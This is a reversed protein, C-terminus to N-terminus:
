PQGAKGQIQRAYYRHITQAMEVQKRNKFVRLSFAVRNVSGPWWWAKSRRRPEQLHFIVTFDSNRKLLSMSKAEAFRFPQKNATHSLGSANLTLAGTRYNWNHLVIAGCFLSLVGTGAWAPWPMGVTVFFVIWGACFLFLFSFISIYVWAVSPKLPWQVEPFHRDLSEKGAPTALRGPTADGENTRFRNRGRGAQLADRFSRRSRCPGYPKASVIM